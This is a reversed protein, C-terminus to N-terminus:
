SGVLRLTRERRAYAIIALVVLLVLPVVPSGGVVFLHVLVAGLMVPAVILAGLGAFRPVVLLLAGAVELIGTLYRFWQGVGIADYLGVMAPDSSLKALGAMALMAAAALQLVWLAVNGARGTRDATPADIINTASM